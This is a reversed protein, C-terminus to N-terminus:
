VATWLPEGDLNICTAGEILVRRYARANCHLRLADRIEWPKAPVRKIVDRLIQLKLPKPQHPDFAAPFSERRLALTDRIQARRRTAKNPKTAKAAPRDQSPSISSPRKSPLSMGKRGEVSAVDPANEKADM